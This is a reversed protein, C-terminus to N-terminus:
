LEIRHARRVDQHAEGAIGHDKPFRGAPFALWRSACCHQPGFWFRRIGRLEVPCDFPSCLWWFACATEREFIKEGTAACVADRIAWLSGDVLSQPSYSGACSYQPAIRPSPRCLAGDIARL